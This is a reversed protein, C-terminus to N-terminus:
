KKAPAPKLVIQVGSTSTGQVLVPYTGETVWRLQGDVVIQASVWYHYKPDIKAPDFKLEFPIPVQKGSGAIRQEAIFPGLLGHSASALHVEIVANPPL